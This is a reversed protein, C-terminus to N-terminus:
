AQQIASNSTKRCKCIQRLTGIGNSAMKHLVKRFQKNRMYFIIGDAWNTIFVILYTVELINRQVLGNISLLWCIAVPAWCVLVFALILIVTTFYQTQIRRPTNVAAFQANCLVQHRRAIILIHFYLVVMIVLGILILGTFICVFIGTPFAGDMSRYALSVRIICIIVVSVWTCCVIYLSRHTTMLRRYQVCCVIALYRDITLLVLSIFCHLLIVMTNGYSHLLSLFSDASLIDIHLITMTIQLFIWFGMVFNSITLSALFVKTPTPINKVRSIVVLFLPNLTLILITTLILYISSWLPPEFQHYYADDFTSMSDISYISFIESDNHLAM